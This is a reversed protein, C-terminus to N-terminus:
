CRARSPQPQARSREDTQSASCWVSQVSPGARGGCRRPVSPHAGSAEMLGPGDALFKAEGVQRVDGAM